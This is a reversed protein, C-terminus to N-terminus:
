RAKTVFATRNVINSTRLLAIQSKSGRIFASQSNLAWTASRATALHLVLLGADILRERSAAYFDRYVDFNIKQRTEVYDAPKVDFDNREWGAFWFRM